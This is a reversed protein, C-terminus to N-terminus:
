EFISFLLTSLNEGQRVGINSSFYDSCTSGDRVCNKKKKKIILMKGDIGNRL